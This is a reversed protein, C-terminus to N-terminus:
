FKILKQTLSQNNQTVKLFYFGANLFSLDVTEGSMMGDKRWKKEGNQTFVEVNFAFLDSNITLESTFPNPQAVLKFSPKQFSTRPLSLTEHFFLKTGELEYGGVPQLPNGGNQLNVQLKGDFFTLSRVNDIEFQHTSTPKSVFLKQAQTQFSWFTLGLLMWRFQKKLM